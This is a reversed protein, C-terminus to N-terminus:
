QKTPVHGKVGLAELCEQKTFTIGNRKAHEYQDDFTPFILINNNNNEAFYVGKKDVGYTYVDENNYGLNTMKKRRM